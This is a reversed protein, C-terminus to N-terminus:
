ATPTGASHARALGLTLPADGGDTPHCGRGVGLRHQGDDAIFNPFPACRGHEALPHLVIASRSPSSSTSCLAGLAARARMGAAATPRASSRARSRARARM